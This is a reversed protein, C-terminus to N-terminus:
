FPCFEVNPVFLSTNCMCFALSIKLNGNWILFIPIKLLPLLIKSFKFNKANQYTKLPGFWALIVELNTLNKGETNWIKHIKMFINFKQKKFFKCNQRNGGGQGSHLPCFHSTLHFYPWLEPVFLSLFMNLGKKSLNQCFLCTEFIFLWIKAFIPSQAWITMKTLKQGVLALIVMALTPFSRFTFISHTALAMQDFNTFIVYFCCFKAIKPM